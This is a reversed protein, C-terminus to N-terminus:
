QKTVMCWLAYFLLATSLWGIVTWRRFLRRIEHPDTARDLRGQDPVLFVLWALTSLVLAAIGRVLWANLMVPLSGTVIMAVGTITLGAGGGLTFIWDSLIIAKAIPKFPAGSAQAQRYMFAAWFGTVTVNGLLLVASAVHLTKLVAYGNM